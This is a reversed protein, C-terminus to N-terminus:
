DVGDSWVSSVVQIHCVLIHTPIPSSQFKRRPSRVQLPHVFHGEYVSQAGGEVLLDVLYRSGCRGFGPVFDTSFRMFMWWWQSFIGLKDPYPYQDYMAYIDKVQQLQSMSLTSHLGDWAGMCSDFTLLCDDLTEESDLRHEPNDEHAWRGVWLAM